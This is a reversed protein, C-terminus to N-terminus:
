GNNPTSDQFYDPQCLARALCGEFWLHFSPKFLFFLIFFDVRVQFCAVCEKSEEVVLVLLSYM